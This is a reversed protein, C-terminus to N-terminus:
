FSESLLATRTGGARDEDESFNRGLIPGIGLLPLLNSSVRAANVRLPEPGGTLKLTARTWAALDDYSRNRERWMRLVAPAPTNQDIGASPITEWVMTLRDPDRFPLPTLLWANAVSFLATTAGLGLALTALSAMSALPQRAALRWAFRVDQLLSSLM